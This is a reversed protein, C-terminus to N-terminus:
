IKKVKKFIKKELVWLENIKLGKFIFVLFIKNNNKNM